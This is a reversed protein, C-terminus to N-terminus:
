QVIKIGTDTRIWKWGPANEAFWSNLLEESVYEWKVQVECLGTVTFLNDADNMLGIIPHGDEWCWNEAGLPYLKMLGDVTKCWIGSVIEDDEEYTSPFTYTDAEANYSASPMGEGNLDKMAADHVIMLQDMVDTTFAPVMWGNWTRNQVYAPFEKVGYFELSVKTRNM